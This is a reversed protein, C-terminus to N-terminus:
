SGACDPAIRSKETGGIKKYGFFVLHLCINQYIRLLFLKDYERSSCHRDTVKVRNLDKGNPLLKCFYQHIM